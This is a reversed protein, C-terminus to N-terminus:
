MLHDGAKAQYWTILVDGRPSSAAKPANVCVADPSLIADPNTPRVWEAGPKRTAVELGYIGPSRERSQNQPTGDCGRVSTM